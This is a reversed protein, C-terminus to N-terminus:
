SGELTSSLCLENNLPTKIPLQSQLLLTGYVSHSIFLVFKNRLTRFDALTFDPHWDAQTRPLAGEWTASQCSRTNECPLFLGSPERLDWKYPVLGMWSIETRMRIVEWPGWRRIGDCQSNPNWHIFTPPVCVKMRHSPVLYASTLCCSTFIMAVELNSFPM